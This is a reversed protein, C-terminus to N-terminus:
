KYRETLADRALGGVLLRAVEGLLGPVSRQPLEAEDRWSVGVQENVSREDRQTPSGLAERETLNALSAFVALLEEM